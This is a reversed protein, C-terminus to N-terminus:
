IDPFNQSTCSFFISGKCRTQIFTRREPSVDKFTLSGGNQFSHLSYKPETKKLNIM